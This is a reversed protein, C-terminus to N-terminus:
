NSPNLQWPPTFDEKYYRMLPQVLAKLAIDQHEPNKSNLNNKNCYTSIANYRGLVVEACAYLFTDKRCRTIKQEKESIWVHHSRYMQWEEKNLTGATLGDEAMQFQRDVIAEAIDYLDPCNQLHRHKAVPGNQHHFRYYSLQGWLEGGLMDMNQASILVDTGSKSFMDKKNHRMTSLQAMFEDANTDGIWKKLDDILFLGDSFKSIAYLFWKKRDEISMEAGNSYRAQLQYITRDPQIEIDSWRLVPAPVWMKDPAGNLVIVKRGIRGTEPNDLIYGGAMNLNEHTKGVGQLATSVFLSFDRFTRM